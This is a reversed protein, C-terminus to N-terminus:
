EYLNRVINRLNEAISELAIANREALEEIRLVHAKWIALFDDGEVASWKPTDSM